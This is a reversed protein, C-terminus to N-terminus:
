APLHAAITYSMPFSARLSEPMQFHGRHQPSPEMFPFAQWALVAHEDFRDLVLGADLLAQIVSAPNHAWEFQEPHEVRGTGAYSHTYEFRMAPTGDFYPYEFIINDETSDDSPTVIMAHGETMVFRGGPRLLAAVVQAWRRINPLWNIAGVGTYVLDFTRGGLAEVANYVDSQVYDIDVESRAAIDRGAEIAPESFDLGTMSAGLRALSLTDTGIHCQLHVAEVGTLDGLYPRDFEVDGSIAAKDSVIGEIDYGGPGIHVPVRADWNARTAAREADHGIPSSDNSDM